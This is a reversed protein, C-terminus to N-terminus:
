HARTPVVTAPRGALAVVLRANEPGPDILTAEVFVMQSASDVEPAVADITGILPFDVDVVTARVADGVALRSMANAPVAFRLRLASTRVLRVISELRTVADGQRIYALAIVGDFPASIQANAVISRRQELRRQRQEVAISASELQTQAIRQGFQADQYQESSLLREDRLLGARALRTKSQEMEVNARALDAQALRLDLEAIAVDDRSVGANDLIALVDGKRVREGVQAKLEVVQGESTARVDVAEAPLVLGLFSEHEDTSPGESRAAVTSPAKADETEALQNQSPWSSGGYHDAAWITLAAVGIFVLAKFLVLHYRTFVSTPDFVIPDSGLM